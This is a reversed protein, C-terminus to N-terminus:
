RLFKSRQEGWLGVPFCQKDFPTKVPRYEPPGGRESSSTLKEVTDAPQRRRIDREHGAQAAILVSRHRLALRLGNDINRGWARFHSAFDFQSRM